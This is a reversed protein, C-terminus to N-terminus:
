SYRPPPYPEAVPIEDIRSFVEIARYNVDTVHDIVDATTLTECGEKPTCRTGLLGHAQELLAFNVLKVGLWVDVANRDYPPIDAERLLKNLQDSSNIGDTLALAVEKSVQTNNQRIDYMAQVKQIPTMERCKAENLTDVSM